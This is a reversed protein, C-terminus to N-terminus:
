ATDACCSARSAPMMWSRLCMLKSTREGHGRLDPAIVRRRSELHATQAAYYSRDGLAGHILMVAPDGAGAAEYAINLDGVSVHRSEGGPSTSM